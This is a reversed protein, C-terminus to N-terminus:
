TERSSWPDAAAVAAWKGCMRDFVGVFDTSASMEIREPVEYGERGWRERCHEQYYRELTTCPELELYVNDRTIEYTCGTSLAAARFCALVRPVLSIVAQATPARIGYKVKAEGPIVPLAPRRLILRRNSWQFFTCWYERQERPEGNTSWGESGAIIGHVRSTAPIQQRLVSVNVYAAVAADLANIATEPAGGAHASKGTYTV